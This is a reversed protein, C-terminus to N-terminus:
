PGSVSMEINTVSSAPIPGPPSPVPFVATPPSGTLTMTGLDALTTQNGNADTGTLVVHVKDGACNDTSGAPNVGTVTVTFVDFFSTIGTASPAGTVWATAYSAQVDCGPAPVPHGGVGLRDTSVTVTNAAFAYAGGALMAATVGAAVYRRKGQLLAMVKM